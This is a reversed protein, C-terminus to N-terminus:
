KGCCPLVHTAARDADLSADDGEHEPYMDLYEERLAEELPQGLKGVPWSTGGFRQRKKEIDACGPKHLEFMAQNTPGGSIEPAYMEFPGTPGSAKAVKAPTEQSSDYKAGTEVLKTCAECWEAPVVGMRWALAQTEHGCTTSHEDCMTVWREDADVWNGGKNRDLVVVTTGTQRSRARYIEGAYTAARVRTTKSMSDEQTATTAM